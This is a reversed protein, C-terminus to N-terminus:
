LVRVTVVGFDPYLLECFRCAKAKSYNESARFIRARGSADYGIWDILNGDTNCLMLALETKPEM